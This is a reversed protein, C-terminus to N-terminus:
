PVNFGGALLFAIAGMVIGGLVLRTIWSLSGKIDSLSQQIHRDREAAVAVHTEVSKLRGDHEDLRKHAQNIREVHFSNVDTM